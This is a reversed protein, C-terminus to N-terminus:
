LGLALLSPSLIIGPAQQGALRALDTLEPYPLFGAEIFLCGFTFRQGGVDACVYALAYTLMCVHRDCVMCVCVHLPFFLFFSISGFVLLNLWYCLFAVYVQFTLWTPHLMRIIGDGSAVSHSTLRSLM